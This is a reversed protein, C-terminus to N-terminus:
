KPQSAPLQPAAQLTLDNDWPYSVLFEDYSPTHRTGSSVDVNSKMFERVHHKKQM